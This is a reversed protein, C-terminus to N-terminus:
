DNIVADSKGLNCRYCNTELNKEETKGGHSVPTIHHIHLKVNNDNKPNAGCDVCKYNDRKPIKARLRPSIKERVNKTVKLSQLEEFTIQEM